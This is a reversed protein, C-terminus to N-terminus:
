GDMLRLRRRSGLWLVVALFAAGGLLVTPRPGIAETLWGQALNGLPVTGTLGMLYLALVKGRMEEDVLLQLTTNLTSAVALYGAGAVLLAAVGWWYGPALAFAMLSAGYVVLAGTILRSRLLGSGWGAVVPTGLIAGLGLAAGLLGYLGRGVGFVDDAFVVLLTFVPSGFLGLAIVVLICTVIGPKTRTYRITAAFEALVRPRGTRRTAIVPVRILVLAAIVAVYSLGNVLFAWTVGSTALVIGGLAPGFARSANFQASNLTVANLLDERPVLESVFAQWSPINLGAVVGSVAVIGVIVVANRVGAAWVAAEALALVAMASQTVLLVTRRPFRDAVVGGLPGMLWAPFLQAFGAVGLWGASGTLQFVVFPVTVNQVWTGTNSLVAGTWFLAFNRHHFARAADRM